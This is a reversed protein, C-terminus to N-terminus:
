NHNSCSNGTTSISITAETEGETYLLLYYYSDAYPHRETFVHNKSINYVGIKDPLHHPLARASLSASRICWRQDDSHISSSREKIM